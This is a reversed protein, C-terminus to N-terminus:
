VDDDDDDDDDGDDDDDDDPEVSADGREECFNTVPIILVIIRVFLITLLPTLLSSEM